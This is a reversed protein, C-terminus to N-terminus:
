LHPTIAGLAGYFFAGTLLEGAVTPNVSPWSRHLAWGTAYAAGKMLGAVAISAGVWPTVFLWAIGAPLTILLGTMGMAVFEYLDRRGAILGSPLLWRLWRVTFEEQYRGIYEDAKHPPWRDATGADQYAGHGQHLAIWTLILVALGPWHGLALWTVMAFPLACVFTKATRPIADHPWGGGRWRYLWGGLPAAVLSYLLVM